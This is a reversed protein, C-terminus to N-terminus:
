IINFLRLFAGLADWILIVLFCHLLFRTEKAWIRKNKKGLALDWDQLFKLFADLLDAADAEYVM